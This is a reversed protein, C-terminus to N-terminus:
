PVDAPGDHPNTPGGGGTGAMRQLADWPTVARRPVCGCAGENLNKGCQPCLGRCGPSCVPHWPIELLIVERIEEQLELNRGDYYLLGTDEANGEEDTRRDREARKECLLRVPADIELRVPAICLDCALRVVARARGQIEVQTDARYFDGEFIVGGELDADDPTIGVDDPDGELRLRNAGEELSSLLVLFPQAPHRM